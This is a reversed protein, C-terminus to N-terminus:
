LPSDETTVQQAGIARARIIKRRERASTGGFVGEDIREDLAMELCEDIVVCYRVCFKKAEVAGAGDIPFFFDGGGKMGLCAADGEWERPDRRGHISEAVTM